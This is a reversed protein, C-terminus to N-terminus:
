NQSGRAAAVAEHRFAVGTRADASRRAIARDGTSYRCGALLGIAQRFKLGAATLIVAATTLAYGILLVLQRQLVIMLPQLEANVVNSQVISAAPSAGAAQPPVDVDYTAARRGDSLVSTAPAPGRCSPVM